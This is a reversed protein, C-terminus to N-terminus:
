SSLRKNRNDFNCHAVFTHFCIAIRSYKVRIKGWLEVIKVGGGLCHQIEQGQFPPPFTLPDWNFQFLPINWNASLEALVIVYSDERAGDNSTKTSTYM